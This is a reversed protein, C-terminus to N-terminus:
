SRGERSFYKRIIQTVQRRLELYQRLIKLDQEEVEVEGLYEVPVEEGTPLRLPKYREDERRVEFVYGEENFALGVEPVYVEEVVHYVSHFYELVSEVVPVRYRKGQVM